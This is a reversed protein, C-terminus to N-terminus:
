ARRQNIGEAVWKLKGVAINLVNDLVDDGRRDAERHALHLMASVENITELTDNLFEHEDRM